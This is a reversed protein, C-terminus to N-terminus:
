KGRAGAETLLAPARGTALSVAPPVAARSEARGGANLPTTPPSPPRVHVRVM